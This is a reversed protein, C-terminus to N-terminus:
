WNKVETIQCRSCRRGGLQGSRPCIRSDWLKEVVTSFAYVACRYEALVSLLGQETDPLEATRRLLDNAAESLKRLATVDPRDGAAIHLFESNRPHTHRAPPPSQDLTQRAERPDEKAM